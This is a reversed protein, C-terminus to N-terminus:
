LCAPGRQLLAFECPGAVADWGAFGRVTQRAAADGLHVGVRDELLSPGIVPRSDAHVPRLLPLRHNVHTRWHRRLRLLLFGRLFCDTELGHSSSLRRVKRIHALRLWQSAAVERRGICRRTVQLSENGLVRTSAAQGLGCRQRPRRWDGDFIQRQLWSVLQLSGIVVEGQLM